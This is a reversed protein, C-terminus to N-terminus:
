GADSSKLQSQVEDWTLQVQPIVPQEALLRDAQHRRELMNDVEEELALLWDPVDLGAGTPNETFESIESELLEFAAPRDGQRVEEIAPRVLARMRDVALPRVLRENLHDAVTPLRVGYQRSLEHLRKLHWDAVDSTRQALARRWLEAAAMKGRRVLVEHAMVLPRINWAVRDYSASLRLFDILVYLLEGRDSQTTTSNFDKYQGYNEVIAEIILTLQEVAVSRPLKDDLDHVLQPVDEDRDAEQIKGLWADVTQHLIARLNGLNLFRPTFLDHGYTEIFKVLAPWREKELHLKELVSLRLSRSHDLWRKLMAEALTQLSDILEADSAAASSASSASNKGADGAATALCEVMALYGIEFLRDFETVAGEGAPRHKEMAQITAVLQCTECLLGLRPLGRLMTTLVQQVDQAAFMKAPDGKRNLPVYLVTQQELAALLQPFLTRLTAADGRFLARAVVIATSQWAPLESPLPESEAAALVLRTAASTEVATAMIRGLLNDKLMRRRDYEVLSEHTGRPAPIRYRAVASLLELLQRRNAMAQRAWGALVENRGEIPPHAFTAAAAIRWLRALTALFMLRKNLRQAEADLEFDTPASGGELTEGEFGDATSDRYSMEEYAARFLNGDDEDDPGRDDLEDALKSGAPAAFEFQPVNWNSEANAELFDFFRRELSWREAAPLRSSARLPLPYELDTLWRIALAHFSYTGQALELHENQSLWQVLLARAAVYDRKELLTEVVLTYAKPSQFRAVHNRWFAVDGAAEGAEHWAGLAYAVQEASERAERGSLPDVGSIEISAFQDWWNALSALEKALRKELSKDGAAAAEGEARAYLGFIERLVHILVDVRHDRVSNEMAPFLSFQGQFGLINWPDVVAGCEIARDLLDRIETLQGAAVAVRGQDLAHHGATLRGNIECLMRASAVPVIQAQRSSAEPYGMRAFLQALHVHQLQTARLRALRQNLHQRAGGFPQRLSAAEARLREGHPGQTEALLREYFADRFAAIRPLLKALTVSSDHSDPGQGGLASAMLMVGALVAGAEFLREDAALESPEQTRQWIAELTVEQLVFRRFRGQNDLQHPDWQGFQHNPRKNVPHDFDYARPDLALEDVLAPDFYAQRRISDPTQELIKLAQAILDHYRGCVVGAGRFYLPQPCVWEHPYPEIKQPTHLVAM